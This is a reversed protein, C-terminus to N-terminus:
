IVNLIDNHTCIYFQHWNTFQWWGKSIQCSQSMFDISFDSDGDCFVLEGIQMKKKAQNYIIMENITIYNQNLHVFDFIWTFDSM